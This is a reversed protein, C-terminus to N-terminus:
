RRTHHRFHKKPKAQLVLPEDNGSPASQPASRLNASVLQAPIHAAKETTGDRTARDFDSDCVKLYHEMAVKPTNGLWGTVVQLPYSEVFETERSARLNHFLRALPDPRRTQRDAYFPNASQREDM